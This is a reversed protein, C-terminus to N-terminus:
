FECSIFPPTVLHWQHDFGPDQINLIRKISQFGNEDDLSPLGGNIKYEEETNEIVPPPPARKYLRKRPIQEQIVLNDDRKHLKTSKPISVMYYSDLEGVPGEFRAGLEHAIQKASEVAHTHITYYHRNEYDRKYLTNASSLVGGIILLCLLLRNMKIVSFCFYFLFTHQNKKKKKQKLHIPTCYSPTDLLLTKKKKPEQFCEKNM